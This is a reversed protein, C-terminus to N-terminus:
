RLEGARVSLVGRCFLEREHLGLAADQRQLAQNRAARIDEISISSPQEDSM